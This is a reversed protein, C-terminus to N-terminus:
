KNKWVRLTPYECKLFHPDTSVVEAGIIISTAAIIADPLKLLKRRRIEITVNEIGETIPLVSVNSLFEKLHSEDEPTLKSYGLVEMRTIVSIFREEGLFKTDLDVFGPERGLFKIIVTSDFVIRGNMM